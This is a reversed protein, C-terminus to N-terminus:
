HIIPKRSHVEPLMEIINRSSCSMFQVAAMGREFKLNSSTVYTNGCCSLFLWTNRKYRLLVADQHSWKSMLIVEWNNNKFDNTDCCPLCHIGLQALTEIVFQFEKLM